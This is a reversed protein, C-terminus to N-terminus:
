RSRKKSTRKRGPASKSAQKWFRTIVEELDPKGIEQLSYTVRVTPLPIDILRSLDIPTGIVVVEADSAKITRELDRVQKKGYGMAPLVPGTEPYQEFTRAITGKAFDRPDVAEAAGFKLAAVMGAGFEMEGHTVTPGDEIILVRKGPLLEPRDVSVPSAADIIVANPNAARVNRRVEEIDDADATDIKNIVVVDAMKVNAEGPHYSVEDGPRHPDVVVIALDPKFFPMDNNGGDWIVVDAEKEMEKLIAGYDVGAFVPTKNMLHPEYEEREEITCEHKELDKYTRFRQVAQKALDGYPMPHRAVAPKAGLARLIDVVRRTTQSKGSGTRGACVSVVPKTSPIATAKMGMLRYDPGAALVSSGINMVYEHPIDSYAFIVEDIKKAEIFELLESEAIIPIPADYHPGALALPYARGDINPIQTATFAVVESDPDNRFVTNFTHFDRGAAGMIVVRKRKM